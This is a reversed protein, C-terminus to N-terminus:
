LFVLGPAICAIKGWVGCAATGKFAVLALHFIQVVSPLRCSVRWLAEVGNDVSTWESPVPCSTCQFQRACHSSPYPHHSLGAWHSRQGQQFVKLRESKNFPLPWWYVRRSAAGRPPFSVFSRQLHQSCSLQVASPFLPWLMSDIQHPIEHTTSMFIHMANEM